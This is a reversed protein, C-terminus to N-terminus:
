GAVSQLLVSGPAYVLRKGEGSLAFFRDSEIGAIVATPSPDKTDPSAAFPIKFLSFTQNIKRLYYIADGHPAWRATPIESDAVLLRRQESGDAKMSWLTYRGQQDSSVYTLLDQRSWDIDWVSWRGDRLQVTRQEHGRKDFFRVTGKYGVVAITAGDPSWCGIGEDVAISRPTGGLHPMVYVGNKGSGRAWVILENGDPSWRLYGIEPATFITLPSGGALEQVM